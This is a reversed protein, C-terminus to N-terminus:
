HVITGENDNSTRWGIDLAIGKTEFASEAAVRVVGTVRDGLSAADVKISVECNAMSRSPLLLKWLQLITHLANTTSSACAVAM